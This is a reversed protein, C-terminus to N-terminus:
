PHGILIWAIILLMIGFIVSDISPNDQINQSGADGGTVLKQGQKVVMQAFGSGSMYALIGGILAALLQRNTYAFSMTKIAMDQLIVPWDSPGSFLAISGFVLAFFGRYVIFLIPISIGIAIASKGGKQSGLEFIQVLLGFLIMILGFSVVSPIEPNFWILIAGSEFFGAVALPTWDKLGSISAGTQLALNIIVGQAVIFGSPIQTNPDFFLIAQNVIFTLADKFLISIVLVFLGGAVLVWDTQQAELFRERRALFVIVLNAIAFVIWNWPTNQFFDGFSAPKVFLPEKPKNQDDQNNLNFWAGEGTEILEAVEDLSRSEKEITESEPILNEMESLEPTPVIFESPNSEISQQSNGSFARVAFFIGILTAVAFLAFIIWKGKGGLMKQLGTSGLNPLNKKSSGKGQNRTPRNDSNPHRRPREQQVNPVPAIKVEPETPEVNKVPVPTESQVKEETGVEIGISRLFKVETVQDNLFASAVSKGGRDWKANLEQYVFAVDEPDDLGLKAKVKPFVQEINM